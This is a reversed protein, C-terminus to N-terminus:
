RPKSLDNYFRRILRIVCAVKDTELRYYLPLRLLRESERTTYRDTGYFQGFKEGAQSSHLPIYHFASAVGNEELYGILDTRENIDKTKIFFGAANHACDEPVHPLEFLGRDALPKLGEYYLNWSRLRNVKIQSAMELQAYLFAANLESLLYSSGLDIWTYRDVEGRLFRQRNTGKERIIEARQFFRQDNILLAGGEGCTYNKTDHFSYCGLHGITGLAKGKYASMVGQAADEIVLLSYKEAIKMITEMECAVGAYHVPVIAKTRGSIAAEVLSEDMNMTDPRVDVFIIKAGRLAFANATSVFTFSPMIVEDGDRIDALMASMELAHTCSTTLLAKPCGFNDQFWQHCRRTFEGDGSLRNNAMAKLIYGTEKGTTTPVNFAVKMM